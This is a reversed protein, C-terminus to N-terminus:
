DKSERIARIERSVKSDRFGRLDLPGPIEKTVRPVKCVLQALLGRCVKLVLPDRRV